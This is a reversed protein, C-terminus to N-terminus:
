SFLLYILIDCILFALSLAFSRIGWTVLKFKRWAIKSTQYVQDCLNSIFKKDDAIIDLSYKKYEKVSSFKEKIHGFYIISNPDKNQLVPNVSLFSFIISILSSLGSLTSFFVLWNSTNLAAFVSASNSYIITLLVGYITLILVAKAESFKIWEINKLIINWYFSSPEMKEKNSGM